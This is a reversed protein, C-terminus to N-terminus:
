AVAHDLALRQQLMRKAKFLQTKSTNVSIGLMDAIEMHTFGEIVYLNFVTRYGDPLNQIEKTLEELSMRDVPTEINDDELQLAENVEEFYVKRKRIVELNANIFIRYIWSKLTGRQPDFQRLEKFFRIFGEQFSDEADAKNKMYRLCLLYMPQRFMEYLERQARHDQRLCKEILQSIEM